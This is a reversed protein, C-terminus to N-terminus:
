CVDYALSNRKDNDVKAILAHSLKDSSLIYSRSNIFVITCNSKIEKWISKSNALTNGLIIVNVILNSIDNM